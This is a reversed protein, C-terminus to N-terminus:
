INEAGRKGNGRTAQWGPQSHTATGFTTGTKLTTLKQSKLNQNISKEMLWGVGVGTFGIVVVGGRPPAACLHLVCRLFSAFNICQPLLVCLFVVGRALVVVAVSIGRGVYAATVAGGKAM